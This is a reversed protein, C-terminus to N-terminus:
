EHAYMNMLEWAAYQSRSVRAITLSALNEMRRMRAERSRRETIDAVYILSGSVRRKQVLPLVSLSYLKHKGRLEAPFEWEDVKDGSKLTKELFVAIKREAILNWVPEREQEFSNIPLLRLAYKNAMVLNHATDCVLIGASLSDLVTELRDIEGAASIFIDQMQEPSLKDLKKIARKIFQRM